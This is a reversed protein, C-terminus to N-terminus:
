APAHAAAMCALQASLPTDQKCGALPASPRCHRVHFIRVRNTPSSAAAAIERAAMDPWPRNKFLNHKYTVLDNLSLVVNSQGAVQLLMLAPFEPLM